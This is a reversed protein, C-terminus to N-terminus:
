SSYATYCWLGSCLVLVSGSKHFSFVRWLNDHFILCSDRHRTHDALLKDADKRVFREWRTGILRLKLGGRDRNRGSWRCWAYRVNRLNAAEHPNVLMTSYVWRMEQGLTMLPSQVVTTKNQQMKYRKSKQITNLKYITTYQKTQWYWDFWQSHLSGGSHSLNHWAPGLELERTHWSCALGTMINSVFDGHVTVFFTPRQNLLDCLCICTVSWVSL